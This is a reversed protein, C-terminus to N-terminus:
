KEGLFVHPYVDEQSFVKANGNGVVRVNSGQMVPGAFSSEDEEL